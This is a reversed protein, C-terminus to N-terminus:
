PGATWDGAPAWQMSGVWDLGGEWSSGLQAGWLVLDTEPWLEVPLSTPSLVELGLAPITASLAVQDPSGAWAEGELTGALSASDLELQISVVYRDVDCAAPDGPDLPEETRLIVEPGPRLRIGLPQPAQGDLILEGSLSTEVAGLLVEPAFGLAGVPASPEVLPQDIALCPPEDGEEGIQGGLSPGTPSGPPAPDLPPSCAWLLLLIM